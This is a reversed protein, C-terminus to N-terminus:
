EQTIQKYNKIFTNIFNETDKAVKQALKPYFSLFNFIVIVEDIEPIMVRSERLFEEYHPIQKDEINKWFSAELFELTQEELLDLLQLKYVEDDPLDLQKLIEEFFFDFNNQQM